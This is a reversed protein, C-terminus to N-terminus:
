VVFFLDVEVSWGPFLADSFTQGREFVRAAQGPRHVTVSASKPDVVWVAESGAALYQAVKEALLRRRDSPSVVEIALTPAARPYEDPDAEAYKESAQFSVDPSRVTPPGESLAYGAESFVRGLGRGRVFPALAENINQQIMSHRPKPPPMSILVGAVLEHRQGDRPLSAFEEITLLTATPAASM